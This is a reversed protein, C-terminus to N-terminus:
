AIQITKLKKLDAQRKEYKQVVELADEYQKQTPSKSM